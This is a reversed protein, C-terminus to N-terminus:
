PFRLAGRGLVRRLGHRDDRGVLRDGRDDAAVFTPRLLQLRAPWDRPRGARDRGPSAMRRGPVGPLGMARRDLGFRADPHPRDCGAHGARPDARDEFRGISRHDGPQRVVRIGPRDRRAHRVAPVHGLGPAVRRRDGGARRALPGRGDDAPRDPHAPDPRSEALGPGALSGAGLSRTGSGDARGTRRGGPRDTGRAAGPGARERGRDRFGPGARGGGGDGVVREPCGALRM